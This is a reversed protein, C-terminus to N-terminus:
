PKFFKTAEIQGHKIWIQTDVTNYLSQVTIKLLCLMDKSLFHIMNINPKYIIYKVYQNGKVRVGRDCNKTTQERMLM